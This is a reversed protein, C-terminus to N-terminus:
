DIRAFRRWFESSRGTAPAVRAAEAIEEVKTAFYGRESFLKRAADIIAARTAAAYEDRRSPRSPV